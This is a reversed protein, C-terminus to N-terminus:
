DTIRQERDKLMSARRETDDVEFLVSKQQIEFDKQQSELVRRERELQTKLRANEARDMDILKEASSMAGDSGDGNETLHQRM